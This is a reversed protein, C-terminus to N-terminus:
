DNPFMKSRTEDYNDHYHQWGKRYHKEYEILKGEHKIRSSKLFQLIAEKSAEEDLKGEKEVLLDVLKQKQEKGNGDVYSISSNFAEGSLVFGGDGIERNVVAEVYFADAESKMKMKVYEDQNLPEPREWVETRKTMHFGEHALTLVQRRETFESGLVIMNEIYRYVPASPNRSMGVRFDALWPAEDISDMVNKFTPSKESNRKVMENNRVDKWNYFKQIDDKNDHTNQNIENPKWLLKSLQKIPEFLPSDTPNLAIKEDAVEVTKVEVEPDMEKLEPSGLQAYTASKAEEDKLVNDNKAEAYSEKVAEWAAKKKEQILRETTITKGLEENREIKNAIYATALWASKEPKLANELNARSKGSM